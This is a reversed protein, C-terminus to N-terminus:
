KLTSASNKDVTKKSTLIKNIQKLIEKRYNEGNHTIDKHSLEYPIDPEVGLDELKEGNSRICLSSTLGVFALGLHSNVSHIQVCGGAGATKQGMIVARKNDQLIAPFLDAASFDQENVLCLIPGSYHGWPHSPIHDINLIPMLRSQARKDFWDDIINQSYHQLCCLMEKTLVFGDETEELDVWEDNCIEELVEQMVVADILEEITLRVIDFPAELPKDTLCGLLSYMYLVSGGPNNTQDVVLLDAKTEMIEMLKSFESVAEETASAFLPSHEEEDPLFTPIRVYGITEGNSNKFLYCFFYKSHQVEPHSGLPPLFGQYDQIDHPSRMKKHPLVGRKTAAQIPARTKKRILKSLKTFPNEPKNGLQWNVVSTDLNEPHIPLLDSEYDWHILAERLNGSSDIFQIFAPETPCFDALSGSRSTVAQEALCLNTSPNSGGMKQAKQEIVEAIPQHNFSIIEDGINLPVMSFPAQQRDIATVFWKNKAGKISFPLTSGETSYFIGSVHYDKISCLFELLIERAKHISLNPNEEVKVMSQQLAGQITWNHMSQKWAIPGYYQQVAEAVQKLDAQCREAVVNSLPNSLLSLNVALLASLCFKKM